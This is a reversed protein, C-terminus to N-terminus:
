EIRAISGRPDDSMSLHTNHRCFPLHFLLGARIVCGHPSARNRVHLWAQPAPDRRKEGHLGELFGRREGIRTSADHTQFRAFGARRRRYRRPFGRTSQKLRAPNTIRLGKAQRAQALADRAM